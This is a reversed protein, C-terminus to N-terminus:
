AVARAFRRAAVLPESTSLTAELAAETASKIASLVDGRWTDTAGGQTELQTDAFAPVAIIAARVRGELALSYLARNAIRPPTERCVSAKSGCAAVLAEADLAADIADAGDPVLRPGPWSVGAADASQWDACNNAWSSVKLTEIGTRPELLLAAGAGEVLDLLERNDASWISPAFGFRVSGNRPSWGEAMLSRLIDQAITVPAWPAPGFGILAVDM